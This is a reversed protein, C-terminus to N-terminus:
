MEEETTTGAQEAIWKAEFAGNHFRLGGNKCRYKCDLVDGEQPSEPWDQQLCCRLVGGIRVKYDPM